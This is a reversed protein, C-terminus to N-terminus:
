KCKSIQAKMNLALQMYTAYLQTKNKIWDPYIQWKALLNKGNMNFM